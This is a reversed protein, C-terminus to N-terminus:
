DFGFEKWRKRVREEDEPSLKYAVPPYFDNGWEERRGFNWTKTADIIM